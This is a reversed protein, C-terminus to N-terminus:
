YNYFRVIHVTNIQDGALLYLYHRMKETNADHNMIL